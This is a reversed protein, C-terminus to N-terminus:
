SDMLAAVIGPGCQRCGLLAANPESFYSKPKSQIKARALEANPDLPAYVAGDDRLGFGIGDLLDIRLRKTTVACLKM